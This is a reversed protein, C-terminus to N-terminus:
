NWNLCYFWQIKKYDEQDRDEYVHFIFRVAKYNELNPTFDRLRDAISAEIRIVLMIFM